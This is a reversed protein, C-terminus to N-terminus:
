FGQYMQYLDDYGGVSVGSDEFIQPFSKALPNLKLVDEISFDQGLNLYTYEIKHAECFRKAKDCFPCDNKGYIIMSQEGQVLRNRESPLIVTLHYSWCTQWLCCM